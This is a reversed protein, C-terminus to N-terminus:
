DMPLPELWQMVGQSFPTWVGITVGAHRLARGTWENCTVIASYRGTASYFADHPGYGPEPPPGAPDFSGEIFAILGALEEPRLRAMRVGERAVPRAIHEVHMVTDDSGTAAHAVTAADLDRWTPTEIYFARDGWGFAVHDHRTYDPDRLDGARLRALLGPPLVAKPLVIGTHIGNDEVYIAAGADSQRWDRNAPLKAIAWGAFGYGYGIAVMALM